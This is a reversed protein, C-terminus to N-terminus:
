RMAVDAFRALLETTVEGALGCPLLQQARAAEARDLWRADVHEDSLVVRDHDARGVFRHIHFILRREVLHIARPGLSEELRIVLGTEEEIERVAADHPAEGPELRGGPLCWMSAFSRDDPRRRLVLAREDHVVLVVAAEVTRTM